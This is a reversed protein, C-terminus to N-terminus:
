LEFDDSDLGHRLGGWHAFRALETKAYISYERVVSEFSDVLASTMFFVCNLLVFDIDVTPVDGNAVGGKRFKADALKEEVALRLKKSSSRFEHRNEKRSDDLFEQAERLIQLYLVSVRKTRIATSCIKVMHGLRYMAEQSRRFVPLMMSSLLRQSGVFESKRLIIALLALCVFISEQLRLLNRFISSIGLTVFRLWQHETVVPTQVLLAAINALEVAVSDLQDVLGHGSNVDLVNTSSSREDGTLMPRSLSQNSVCNPLGSGTSSSALNEDSSSATLLGRATRQSKMAENTDFKKSAATTKSLQDESESNPMRTKSKWESSESVRIMAMSQNRMYYGALEAFSNFQETLLASLAERIDDAAFRPFVMLQFLFSVVVGALVSVMRTWAYEFDGACDATCYPVYQCMVVLFITLILLLLGYQMKQLPEITAPLIMFITATGILFVSILVPSSAAVPSLMFAGALSSGVVTGAM